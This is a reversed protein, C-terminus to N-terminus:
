RARERWWGILVGRVIHEFVHLLMPSDEETWVGAGVSMGHPLREIVNGTGFYPPMTMSPPIPMAEHLAKSRWLYVKDLLQEMKGWDVQAMPEARPQPPDPLFKMVTRKFKAKAKVLQALEGVIEKEPNTARVHAAIEPWYEDLLDMASRHMKMDQAVAEVASVLFLWAQSPDADSVWLANRYLHAARVLRVARLPDLRPYLAMLEVCDPLNVQLDKLRPIQRRAEGVPLTQEVHHWEVPEGLPDSGPEPRFWRVSGGGRARIGLALSLLVAFEDDLSLGSFEAVDTKSWEPEIPEDGLHDDMRLVLSLLAGERGPGHAVTNFLKYPGLGARVDGILITDTYIAFEWVPVGDKGENFAVWNAYLHTGSGM